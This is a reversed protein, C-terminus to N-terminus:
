CYNEKLVVDLIAMLYATYTCGRADLHKTLLEICLDHPISPYLREVDMTVLLHHKEVRLKSIEAVFQDSDRLYSSTAIVYSLLLFALLLAM